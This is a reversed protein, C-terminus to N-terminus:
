GSHSLSSASLCTPWKKLHQSSRDSVVDGCVAKGEWIDLVIADAASVVGKRLDEGAFEGVYWDENSGVFVFSSHEGLNKAQVVVRSGEM